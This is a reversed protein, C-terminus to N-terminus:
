AHVEQGNKSEIGKLIETLPKGEDRLLALKRHVNRTTMDLKNAIQSASLGNVKIGRSKEVPSKSKTGRKTYKRKKIPTSKGIQKKGTDTLKWLYNTGEVKLEVKSKKKLIKMTELVKQYMNRDVNGYKKILKLYVDTTKCYSRNSNRLYNMIFDPYDIRSPKEGIIDMRPNLISNSRTRSYKRKKKKQIENEVVTEVPTKISGGYLKIVANLATVEQVKQEVEKVKQDREKTLSNLLKLQKM